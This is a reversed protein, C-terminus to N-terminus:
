QTFLEVSYTPEKDITQAHSYMATMATYAIATVVVAVILDTTLSTSQLNLLHNGFRIWMNGAVLTLITVIVFETYFEKTRPM